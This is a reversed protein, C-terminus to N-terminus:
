TGCDCWRWWRQKEFGHRRASLFVLHGGQCRSVVRGTCRTGRPHKGRFPVRTCRAPRNNQWGGEYDLAGDAKKGLIRWHMDGLAGRANRSHLRRDSRELAGGSRRSPTRPRVTSSGRTPDYNPYRAMHHRQGNVLLQDMAVGAPIKAQFGRERFPKWDLQLRAGGSIVPQEGPAAAYVVPAEATGSDEATFRVTEPLYYTGAHLWVTVPKKGAAARAARQAAALPPWRNPRRARIRMM